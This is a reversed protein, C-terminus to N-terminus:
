EAARCEAEATMRLRMQHLPASPQSHVAPPPAWRPGSHMRYLRETSM